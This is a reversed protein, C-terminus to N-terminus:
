ALLYQIAIQDVVNKASENLQLLHCVIVTETELRM